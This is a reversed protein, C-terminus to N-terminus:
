GFIGGQLAPDALPQRLDLEGVESLNGTSTPSGALSSLMGGASGGSMSLNIAIAALYSM